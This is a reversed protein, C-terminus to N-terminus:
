LLNLLVTQLMILIKCKMINGFIIFVILTHLKVVKDVMVTVAPHGNLIIIM